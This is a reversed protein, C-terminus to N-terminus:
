FNAVFDAELDGVALFSGRCDINGADLQFMLFAGINESRKENENGKQDLHHLISNSSNLGCIDRKTSFGNYKCSM